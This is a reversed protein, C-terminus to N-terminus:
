VYVKTGIWVKKTVINKFNDLNNGNIIWVIKKWDSREKFLKKIKQEMSWTVDWEKKRFQINKCSNKDITEIIKKNEDFVWDVDTLIYSEQVNSHHLFYAFWEDSSILKADDTIDWWCIVKPYLSFNSESNLVDELRVRQFDSFITDIKQFYEDLNKRLQHKNEQSLWFANIFWHGVNWAGHILLIDKYASLLIYIKKLYERNIDEQTNKTAILSGWIKLVIM